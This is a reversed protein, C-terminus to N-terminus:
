ERLDGGHTTRWHEAVEIRRCIWVDDHDVIHEILRELGVIRGPRGIIRGHLGISLLKPSTAGERYLADFADAGYRFFQEGSNFGQPTLFRMDNVDLTYPVVLHHQDAVETWYPLDDAYSDSDYVFGGHEVVLRRTRPSDRGTYWGRPASGTLSTILEVAQALHERETAEDVQQYSLWRLGHGAIEHGADVFAATVEPNRELARAVAFITLPLGFREFLRLVRWVGARAGYEYLSEVSMHRDAFAEAGIVDSLFTESSADGDAVSREGGEEYNLVFQVAIRAGGPWKPDPPSAGYGVFDRDGPASL